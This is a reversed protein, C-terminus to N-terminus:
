RSRRWVVVTVLLAVVVVGGILEPRPKGSATLSRARLDAAKHKAHAKVDLKEHLADVTDALQERQREIDAVLRQTDTNSM